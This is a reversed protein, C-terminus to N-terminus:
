EVQSWQGGSDRSLLTFSGPDIQWSDQGLQFFWAHGQFVRWFASADGEMGFPGCNANRPGDSDIRAAEEPTLDDVVLADAPWFENGAKEIHCKQRAAPDSVAPLAIKLISGSPDAPDAKAIRVLVSGKMAGDTDGYGATEYSLAALGTGPKYALKTAKGACTLARYLLVQKGFPTEQVAWECGDPLDTSQGGATNLYALSRSACLGTVPLRDGDDPCAAPVTRDDATAAANGNASPQACAALSLMANGALMLASVTAITKGM